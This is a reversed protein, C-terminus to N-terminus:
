RNTHSPEKSKEKRGDRKEDDPQPEVRPGVIVNSAPPDSAPFSDRIERDYKEEKRKTTM